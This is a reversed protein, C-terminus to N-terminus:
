VRRLKAAPVTYQKDKAGIVSDPMYDSFLLYQNLSYIFSNKVM